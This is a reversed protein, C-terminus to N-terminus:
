WSTHFLVTLEGESAVGEDLNIAVRLREGEDLHVRTPSTYAQVPQGDVQLLLCGLPLERERTLAALLDDTRSARIGGAGIRLPVGEGRPLILTGSAELEVDLGDAVGSALTRWGAGPVIRERLTPTRRAAELPHSPLTGEDAAPERRRAAKAQLAELANGSTEGTGDTRIRTREPDRESRITVGPDIAAPTPAAEVPVSREQTHLRPRTASGPPPPTVEIRSGATSGSGSLVIVLAASGLAVGAIILIARM